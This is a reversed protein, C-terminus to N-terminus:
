EELHPPTEIPMRVIPQSPTRLRRATPTLADQVQTEPIPRTPMKSLLMRPSPNGSAFPSLIPRLRPNTQALLDVDVHEIPKAFALGIVLVFAYLVVSLALATLTSSIHVPGFHSPIWAWTSPHLLVAVGIAPILALCVRAAFRVPYKSRLYRWSMALQISVVLVRGVGLAILAGASGGFMGTQPILLAALGATLALGGWQTIVALRQKGLVYLVAQNAGGGALQQAMNFVLFLQMLPGVPAYNPGYLATAIAQAHIFVFTLLPVALLIQAKIIARWAFALSRRDQGAYSASMAALGVGGLGAILLYAAADTLQYALNFYGILTKTLAYALLLWVVVQKLLAGNVLNVLWASGGLRLVPGYKPIEAAPTHRIGWPILLLLYGLSTVGAIIAGAWLFGAVGYGARLALFVGGLLLVQSLSGVLFTLRTRLLSTFLSTLQNMLGSGLVYAAIPVALASLGPITLAAAVKPLGASQFTNALAPLGWILGSCVIALGAMRTLLARRILSAAAARGQEALVRPLYVTTADEMGFAAAYVATNFTTLAVALGGYAVPGLMHTALITLLFSSLFLWLSSIQNWVYGMPARRLLDQAEASHTPQAPMAEAAITNTSAIPPMHM